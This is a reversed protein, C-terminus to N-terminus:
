SLLHGGLASLVFMDLQQCTERNPCLVHVEPRFLPVLIRCPSRGDKGSADNSGVWFVALDYHRGVMEGPIAGGTDVVGVGRAITRCM